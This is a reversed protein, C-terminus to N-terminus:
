KGATQGYGPRTRMVEDRWRTRALKPVLERRAEDAEYVHLADYPILEALTDAIRDLLDEFRQESLVDHFIGALRRYSDLLPPAPAAPGRNPGTFVAATVARSASVVGSIPTKLANSSAFPM